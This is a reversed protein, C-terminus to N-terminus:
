EGAEVGLSAAFEYLDRVEYDPPEDGPWPQGGRNMWVATLGAARAGAVDHHPNDGIYVASDREVGLEDLAMEFIRPDPKWYGVTESILTVEFLDGIGLLEIKPGQIDTPGNTILGVTAVERVAEVVEVAETFLELGRFRDSVYRERARAAIEPADHGFEALIDAFHGTGESAVRLAADVVRACEDEDPFQESFAHTLRLRLSTAHDCLTNDLDFLVLEPRPNLRIEYGRPINM